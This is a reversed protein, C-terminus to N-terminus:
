LLKQENKSRREYDEKYKLAKIIESELVKDTKKVFGHTIVIDTRQFFFYLFRYENPSFKIRLEHIGDRLYDAYPRKLNPGEISLLAVHKRIKVRAKIDVKDIFEKFPLEERGTKYYVVKYM